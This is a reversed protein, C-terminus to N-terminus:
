SSLCGFHNHWTLRSRNCSQLTGDLPGLRFNSSFTSSHRSVNSLDARKNYQDGHAMAAIPDSGVVHCCMITIRALARSVDLPPIILHLNIFEEIFHHPCRPHLLSSGNKRVLKCDGSRRTMCSHLSSSAMPRVLLEIGHPRQCRSSSLELMHVHQLWVSFILKM